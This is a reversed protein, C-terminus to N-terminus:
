KVIVRDVIRNYKKNNNNNNNNNNNDNHNNNNNHNDFKLRHNQEM